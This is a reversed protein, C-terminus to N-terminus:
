EAFQRWWRWGFCVYCPEAPWPASGCAGSPPDVNPVNPGVNPIDFKDFIEPTGLTSGLTEGLTGINLDGELRKLAWGNRKRREPDVVEAEELRVVFNGDGTPNIAFTWGVRKALAKGLRIRQGRESGDGLVELLMAEALPFLASTDAPTGTHAEWWATIFQGWEKSEASARASFTSLNELFGKIGAAALIGGVVETWSEYSGM